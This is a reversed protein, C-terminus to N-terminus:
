LLDSCHEHCLLGCLRLALCRLELRSARRRDVGGVEDERWLGESEPHTNRLGVNDSYEDHARLRWAMLCVKRSPYGQFQPHKKYPASFRLLHASRQHKQFIPTCFEEPLDQPRTGRFSTSFHQQQERVRVRSGFIKVYMRCLTKKM